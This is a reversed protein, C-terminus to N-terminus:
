DVTLENVVGSVGPASFAAGQAADREQWSRVSGRMSVIGNRLEIQIRNAVRIAQQVLAGQISPQVDSPTPKPKLRVHNSVCVVGMLNRLSKDIGRRQYDWDVDGDVTVWGQDVTLRVAKEPVLTNWRLADRAVEAIAADSSRHGPSLRVDLELAIARVGEVRRLAKEAQRKEAYTDIHGTLSVIGDKVAVGIANANLSPDWALEAEIDKKLETDTKIRKRRTPDTSSIGRGSRTRPHRKILTL